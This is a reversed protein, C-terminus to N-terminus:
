CPAPIGLITRELIDPLRARQQPTLAFYMAVLLRLRAVNRQRRLDEVRNVLAEAAEDSLGGHALARTLEANAADLKRRLLQRYELTRGFEAEIDTVQKRTLALQRQVNPDLWWRFSRVTGQSVGLSVLLMLMSVAISM